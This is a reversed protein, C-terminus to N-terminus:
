GELERDIGLVVAAYFLFVGCLNEGGVDFDIVCGGVHNEIGLFNGDDNRAFDGVIVEVLESIGWEKALAM